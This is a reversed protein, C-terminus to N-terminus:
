KIIQLMFSELKEWALRLDQRDGTNIFEGSARKEEIWTKLDDKNDENIEFDFLFDPTINLKDCLVKITSLSITKNEGRLLQSMNVKQTALKSNPWIEKAIETKSTVLGKKKARDYAEQVRLRM